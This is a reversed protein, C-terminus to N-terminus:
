LLGDFSYLLANQLNRARYTKLLATGISCSHCTSASGHHCRHGALYPAPTIRNGARLGASLAARPSCRRSCNLLM